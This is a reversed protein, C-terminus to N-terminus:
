RRVKRDPTLPASRRRSAPGTPPSRPPDGDAGPAGADAAWVQLKALARQVTRLEAASLQARLQRDYEEMVPQLRQLLRRARATLALRSVRRDHEDRTRRVLGEAELRDLHRVLTPGGIALLEALERQSLVERGPVALQHLVIWTTLDSGHAALEEEAREHLIKHTFALTRALPAPAAGDANPDPVPRPV